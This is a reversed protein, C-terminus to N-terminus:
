KGPHRTQENRVGFLSMQGPVGGHKMNLMCWDCRHRGTLKKIPGAGHTGKARPLEWGLFERWTQREPFERNCDICTVSTAM